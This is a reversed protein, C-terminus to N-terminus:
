LNKNNVKVAAAIRNLNICFPAPNYFDRLNVCTTPGGDSSDFVTSLPVSISARASM